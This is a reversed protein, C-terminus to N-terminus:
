RLLPTFTAEAWDLAVAPDYAVDPRLLPRAEDLFSPVRKAALNTRLESARLLPQGAAAQHEGLIAVIRAPDPDAQRHAWWLVSFPARRRTL